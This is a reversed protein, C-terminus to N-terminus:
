SQGFPFGFGYGFLKVSLAFTRKAQEKYLETAIPVISLLPTTSGRMAQTATTGHPLWAWHLKTGPKAMKDRVKLRIMSKVRQANTYFGGDALGEYAKEDDPVRKFPTMAAHPLIAKLSLKVAFAQRIRQITRRRCKPFSKPCFSKLMLEINTFFRAMNREFGTQVKFQLADLAM